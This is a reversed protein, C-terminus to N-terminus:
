DHARLSQIYAINPHRMMATLIIELIDTTLAPQVAHEGADSRTTSDVSGRNYERVLQSVRDRDIKGSASDVCAKLVSTATAEEGQTKLTSFRQWWVDKVHVYLLARDVWGALRKRDLAMEQRLRGLDATALAHVNRIGAADLRAQDCPKLKLKTLPHRGGWTPLTSQQLLRREWTEDPKDTQSEAQELGRGLWTRVIEGPTAVVIAVLLYWPPHKGTSAGTDFWDMGLLGIVLAVVLRVVFRVLGLMTNHRCSVFVALMGIGAIWSLLFAMSLPTFLNKGIVQLYDSEDLTLQVAGRIADPFLIGYWGVFSLATIVLLLTVQNFTSGPQQEVTKEGAGSKRRPKIAIPLWPLLLVVVLLTVLLWLSAPVPRQTDLGAQLGRWQQTVAWCLLFFITLGLVAAFVTAWFRRKASV